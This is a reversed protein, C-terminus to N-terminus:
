SHLKAPEWAYEKGCRTIAGTLAAKKAERCMMGNVRSFKEVLETSSVKRGEQHIFEIIKYAFRDPYIDRGTFKLPEGTFVEPSFRVEGFPERISVKGDVLYERGITISEITEGLAMRLKVRSALHLNERIQALNQIAVASEITPQGRVPRSIREALDAEKKRWGNLVDTLAQFDQQSEALALNETARRIKKRIEELQTEEFRDGGEETSLRRAAEMLKEQNADCLVHERIMRLLTEELSDRPIVPHMTCQSMGTPLHPCKYQFVDKGRHIYTGGHVVTGCHHCRILGSLLYRGPQTSGRSRANAEIVRQTEYFTAKDVIGPHADEHFILDDEFRSFKGQCVNGFRFVGAFVPNQLMQKLTTVKWKIGTSTCIGRQNLTRVISHYSQGENISVFAFRVADVAVQDESPVIECKWDRPKSFRERVHVRKMLEGSNDYYLRDYAFPPIGGVRLQQRVKNVKGSLSRHAIMKSEAHAQHQEVYTTIFGGLDDLKKEGGRVAVVRVGAEMLLQLHLMAKLPTERSFRSSEYLLVASFQRAQADKLLKQFEPRNASETGTLGHDEYWAIINFGDRKAMAEIEGRQRQPSDEQKDTSMRIYGVATTLQKPHQTTQIM